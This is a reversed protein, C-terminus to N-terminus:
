HLRGDPGHGASGSVWHAELQHHRYELDAFDVSEDLYAEGHETLSQRHVARPLDLSLTPLHPLHAKILEMVTRASM